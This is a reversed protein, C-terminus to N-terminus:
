IVTVTRTCRYILVVFTQRVQGQINGEHGPLQLENEAGAPPAGNLEADSDLDDDTIVAAM